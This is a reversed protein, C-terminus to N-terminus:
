LNRNAKVLQIRAEGEYWKRLSPEWTERYRELGGRAAAPDIASVTLVLDACRLEAAEVAM